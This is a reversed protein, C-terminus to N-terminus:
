LTSSRAARINVFSNNSETLVKSVYAGVELLVQFEDVGRAAALDM